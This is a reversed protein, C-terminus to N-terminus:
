VERRRLATRRARRELQIAHRRHPRPSTAITWSVVMGDFCDIMPSLYVKGAPIQFETIDTLWKENPADAHFDRDIVNEVAPTIEGAYSSYRRRKKIFVILIYILAAMIAFSLIHFALYSLDFFNPKAFILEHFVPRNRYIEFFLFDLLGFFVGFSISFLLGHFPLKAHRSMRPIPHNASSISTM